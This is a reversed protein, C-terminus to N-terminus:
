FVKEMGINCRSYKPHEGELIVAWGRRKYLRIAAANITSSLLYIKSLGMEDRAYREMEAMLKDGIGRGQAAPAVAMKTLEWQGDEDQKLAGVGIVEGDDHVSFISGNNELYIEPHDYMRQDSAEPTHLETIWAMNLEAFPRLASPDNRRIDM